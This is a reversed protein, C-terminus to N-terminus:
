VATLHMRKLPAQHRFSMLSLASVYLYPPTHLTSHPTHFDSTVTNIGEASGM